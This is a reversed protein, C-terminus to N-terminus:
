SAHSTGQTHFEGTADIMDRGTAIAAVVDKHVISVSLLKEVQEAVSNLAKAPAAVGIAQHGVMVMEEHFSGLGIEGTAHAMEVADVSLCPIPAM